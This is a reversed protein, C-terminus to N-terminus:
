SKDSEKQLSKIASKLRDNEASLRRNNERLDIIEFEKKSLTDVASRLDSTDNMRSQIDRSHLDCLMSTNREAFYRTSSVQKNLSGLNSDTRNFGQETSQKISQIDQIVPTLTENLIAKMMDLFYDVTNISSDKIM